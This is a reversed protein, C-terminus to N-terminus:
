DFVGLTKNRFEIAEEVTDFRGLNKGCSYVIYRNGVFIINRHKARKPKFSTFDVVGYKYHTGYITNVSIGTLKSIENPTHVDGNYILKLNSRQNKAQESRPIWKCNSPEYNGNVDVREITLGERYGHTTAWKQFEAFNRWEECVKIGRGGYNKYGKNNPNNCRQLMAAWVPYLRTKCGGHKIM